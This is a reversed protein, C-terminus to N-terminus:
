IDSQYPCVHVVGMEVRSIWPETDKQQVRVKGEREWAIMTIEGTKGLQLDCSWVSKYRGM